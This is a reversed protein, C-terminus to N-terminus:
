ALLSYKWSKPTDTLFMSWWDSWPCVILLEQNGVENNDIPLIKALVFCWLVHLHNNAYKLVKVKPRPGTVRTRYTPIAPALRPRHSQLRRKRACSTYRSMTYVNDCPRDLVPWLKSMQRAEPGDTHGMLQCVLGSEVKNEVRELIGISYKFSKSSPKTDSGHWTALLLFHTETPITGEIWTECFYM